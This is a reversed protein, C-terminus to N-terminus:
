RYNHHDISQYTTHSSLSHPLHPGRIAKGYGTVCMGSASQYIMGTSLQFTASQLGPLRDSPLTKEGSVSKQALARLSMTPRIVYPIMEHNVLSAMSGRASPLTEGSPHRNDGFFAGYSSLYRGDDTHQHRIHTGDLGQMKQTFDLQICCRLTRYRSIYLCKVGYRLRHECMCHGKNANDFIVYMVDDNDCVYPILTQQKLGLPHRLGCIDIM